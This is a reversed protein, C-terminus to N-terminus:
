SGVITPTRPNTSVRENAVTQSVQRAFDMYTGSRDSQSRPKLFGDAAATGQQLIRHHSRTTRQNSPDVWTGAAGVDILSISMSDM